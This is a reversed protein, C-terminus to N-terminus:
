LQLHSPLQAQDPHAQAHPALRRFEQMNFRSLSDAIRNNNGAIHTASVAFNCRACVFFLERLLSMVLPSKSTGSRMCDVVAMNDCHFLIRLKAWDGGWTCCAAVLAFLEKWEISYDQQEPSWTGQTWKGHNFAGWGITGSADTFLQLDPSPIWRPHLFFSKGNWGDLLKLWWRLDERCEQSLTIIFHPKRFKSCVSWLRRM